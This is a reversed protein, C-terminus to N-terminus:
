GSKGWFWHGCLFGLGFPIAPYKAADWIIESITGGPGQIAAFIDWGILLATAGIM